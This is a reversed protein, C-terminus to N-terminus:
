VLSSVRSSDLKGDLYSARLLEKAMRRTEKNIKM